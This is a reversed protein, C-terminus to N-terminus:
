GEFLFSIHFTKSHLYHISNTYMNNEKKLFNLMGYSMKAEISFKFFELYFDMGVGVQTQLDSVYLKIHIDDGSTRKKSRSALDVTYQAGGVVFFRTNGMRSSKFKLLLPFNLNVSEINQTEKTTKGNYRMEYNLSRDILSLAPVFRLDFYNGLHLNAVIGVDFGAMGSPTVSMLSDYRNINSEPKITFNAHNLGISFGFHVIKRDYNPLNPANRQAHGEQPLVILM